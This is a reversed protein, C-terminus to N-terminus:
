IGAESVWEQQDDLTKRYHKMGVFLFLAALAHAVLGVIVISYHLKMEDRFLYDTALGITLPALGLGILANAFIFIASAQGRLSNPMMEQIGAPAVGYTMPGIFYTPIMFIYVLYWNPMLPYLLGFPIWALSVIVGVRMKADRYGMAMLKDTFWGGFVVGATSFTLGTIGLLYGIQSASFGHLRMFLTPVWAGLGYGSFALWAYGINHCSVTKWNKLLYAM